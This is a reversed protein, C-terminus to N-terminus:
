NLKQKLAKSNSLYITFLLVGALAPLLALRDMSNYLAHIFAPIVIAILWLSRRYMPFLTAFAIFYSALGCWVAHLFPLSTLRLVNLFYAMDIGQEHNVGLQYLIGESIGFGLGSFLGYLVLTQPMM